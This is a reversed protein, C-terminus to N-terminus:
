KNNQMSSRISARREEISQDEVSKQSVTAIKKANNGSGSVKSSALIGKNKENYAKLVNSVSEEDSLDEVDRFAAEISLKKLDDPIADLFGIKNQIKELHYNRTTNKYSAKIENLETEKKTISDMAKKLDLELKQTSNLGSNQIEELKASLEELKQQATKKEALIRAAKADAEKAKREWDSNGTAETVKGLEALEEASLIKDVGDMKALKGVIDQIAM